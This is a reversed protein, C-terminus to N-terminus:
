PGPRPWHIAAYEVITSGAVEFALRPIGAAFMDPEIFGGALPRAIIHRVEFGIGIRFVVHTGEDHVRFSHAPEKHWQRAHSVTREGFMVLRDFTRQDIREM